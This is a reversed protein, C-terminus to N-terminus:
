EWDDIDEDDLLDDDEEDDWDEDDWDEEEEDEEPMIELEKYNKMNKHENQKDVKRSTM